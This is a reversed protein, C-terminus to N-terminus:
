KSLATDITKAAHSVAWFSCNFSIQTFDPLSNFSSRFKKLFARVRFNENSGGQWLSLCLSLLKQRCWIMRNSRSGHLSKFQFLLVERHSFTKENSYTILTLSSAKRRAMEAKRGNIKYVHLIRSFIVCFLEKLSVEQLSHDNHSLEYYQENRKQYGKCAL